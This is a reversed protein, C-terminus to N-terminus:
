RGSTAYMRARRRAITQGAIPHDFVRTNMVDNDKTIEDAAFVFIGENETLCVRSRSIWSHGSTAAHHWSVAQSNAADRGAYDNALVRRWHSLCLRYQLLGAELRAPPAFVKVQWAMKIVNDQSV